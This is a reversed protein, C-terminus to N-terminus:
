QSVSDHLVEPLAPLAMKINEPVAAIWDRAMDVAELVDSQDASMGEMLLTDVEDRDFGPMAPLVTESPVTDIWKLLAKLEDTGKM